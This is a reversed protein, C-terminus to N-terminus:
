ARGDLRLVPDDISPDFRRGREELEDVVSALEPAVEGLEIVTGPHDETLYQRFRGVGDIHGATWLEWGLEEAQREALALDRPWYALHHLGGQGGTRELFEAYASPQRDHQAVLAVQLSGLQAIAVSLDITGPQGLHVLESVQPREVVLWPGVGLTRVWHDLHAHLRGAPVVYGLRRIEGFSSVPSM